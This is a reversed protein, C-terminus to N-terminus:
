QGGQVSDHLSPTRGPPTRLQGATVTLLSVGYGITSGIAAGMAGHSPILTLYGTMAAALGATEGASVLRDHGLALARSQWIRGSAFLFVGVALVPVLEVGSAYASGFLPELLWSGALFVVASALAAGGMMATIPRRTHLTGELEATRWRPLLVNAAADFPVTALEVFTGVVVYIGLEQSGALLPLLLRDSRWTAYGALSAPFLRLGTQAWKKALPDTNDCRSRGKLRLTVVIVAGAAAVYTAFWLFSDSNAAVALGVVGTLTTAGTAFNFGLMWRARDANIFVSEILRTCAATIAMAAILPAYRTFETSEALAGAATVVAALAVLALAPRRMLRTGISLMENAVRGPAVVATARDLGLLVFFALLYSVQLAAALSGRGAPGLARAAILNAVLSFGM